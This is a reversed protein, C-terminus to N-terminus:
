LQGRALGALDVLNTAKDLQLAVAHLSAVAGLVAIIIMYPAFARVMARTSLPRGGDAALRRELAADAQAEGQRDGPRGGPRAIRM